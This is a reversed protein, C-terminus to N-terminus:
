KSTERSYILCVHHVAQSLETPPEIVHSYHVVSVRGASSGRHAEEFLGWVTDIVKYGPNGSQSIITHEIVTESM